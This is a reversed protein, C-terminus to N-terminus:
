KKSFYKKAKLKEKLREPLMKDTNAAEKLMEGELEPDESDEEEFMRKGFAKEEEDEMGPEEEGEIAIAVSPGEEEEMGEEEMDMDMLEDFMPENQLKPYKMMLKDILKQKDMM